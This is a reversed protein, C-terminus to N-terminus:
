EDSLAGIHIEVPATGFNTVIAHGPAEDPYRALQALKTSLRHATSEQGDGIGSCELRELSDDGVVGVPRVLYDAGTHTQLRRVVVRNLLRYATLVAMAEGGQETAKLHDAKWARDREEVAVRRISAQHVRGHQITAPDDQREGHLRDLVVSAALALDATVRPSAGPIEPLTGLDLDLASSQDSV